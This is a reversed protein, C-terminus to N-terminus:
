GSKAEQKGWALDWHDGKVFTRWPHGWEAADCMWMDINGNDQPVKRMPGGCKTCRLDPSIM